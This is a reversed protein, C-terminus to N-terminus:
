PDVPSEPDHFFFTAIFQVSLLLTHSNFNFPPSTTLNSSSIYSKASIVSIGVDIPEKLFNSFGLARQQSDSLSMELKVQSKCFKCCKCMLPEPISFCGLAIPLNFFRCVTLRRDHQLRFSCNWTFNTVQRQKLNETVQPLKSAQSSGFCKMQDWCCMSSHNLHQIELQTQKKYASSTWGRQWDFTYSASEKTHWGIYLHKIGNCELTIVGSSLSARCLSTHVVLWVM